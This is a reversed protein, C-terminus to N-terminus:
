AAPPCTSKALRDVQACIEQVSTPGLAVQEGARALSWLGLEEGADLWAVTEPGGPRETAAEIQTSSLVASLLRVAAPPDGESHGRQFPDRLRAFDAADLTIPDRDPAPREALGSVRLLAAALLGTPLPELRHLGFPVSSQAVTLHAGVYFQSHTEGRSRRHGARVVGAPDLAVSVMAHEAPAMAFLGPSRTELVGRAVLARRADLRAADSSFGHGGTGPFGQGGVLEALATLEPTSYTRAAPSPEGRRGLAGPVEGAPQWSCVVALVDGDRLTEPPALEFGPLTGAPREV